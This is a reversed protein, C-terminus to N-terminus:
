EIVVVTHAGVPPLEVQVIGGQYRYEVPTGEPALYVRRPAAEARLGFSLGATQWSQDVHQIPQMTRRPHYCVVHVISRAPRQGNASQQLLSFEAWGPATPQLLPPPLFDNLLKQVTARYIWYDHQRYGTFLPAALYLVSGSRVAIPAALSEGAPANQHGMFHHWSRNFLAARLDGYATAGPLPQVVHSQGYFVYDYDAAMEDFFGGSGPLALLREDLRLYSPVTPAPRLYRVPVSELQFTGTTKDLAATGSLILRGGDALYDSLRTKFAADLATGDPLVLAAYRSVDTDADIVDFQRGMELLMQAAGETEASHAAVGPNITEAPGTALVALEATPQADVLWPELAEIRRFTHGVLRYVAPDLVGGPNLQDGVCIKGGAAVITGCEYELQDRTKLGGFDGWWTHFRGNMGLFDKGYTRAQRAQIPYHLYGWTGTTPLSEVEFHTMYPAVRRIDRDMTGNYFILADPCRSHVLRTLKDFFDTQQKRAFDWVAQDDEVNVGAQQMQAKGWPSYNPQPFCIDFWFGDVPYLRMLEEVAAAVYDYYGSSVDMTTWGWESGLPSRSAIRGDKNVIVWEPHQKGALEDWMISYYIPCLIDRRHLAEIQAGLLDFSLGPHVTGAQTPYYSYGHHCKAFINISNVHAAKLTDGFVDPDFDGGVNQCHESTHFDLHVQRFRLAPSM